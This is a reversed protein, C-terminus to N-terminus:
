RGGGAADLCDDIEDATNLPLCMELAQRQAHEASSTAFSGGAMFGAIFITGVVVLLGIAKFAFGSM